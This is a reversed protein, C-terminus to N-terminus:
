GHAARGSVDGVRITRKSKVSEILACAIQVAAKGESGDPHFGTGQRVTDAFADIMRGLPDEPEFERTKDEGDRQELVTVPSAGSLDGVAEIRAKSGELVVAHKHGAFCTACTISGLAGDRYRLAATVATNIQEEGEDKALAMAHTVTQSSIWSGLDFAHVGLRLLAAPGARFADAWWGSSLDVPESLTLALHKLEGAEGSEIQDKIELSASHFRYQFAVGLRVNKGRAKEVLKHAGDVSLSMPPEMFVHKGAEIAQVAQPVHHYHPTAIYIVEVEPASLMEDLSGFVYLGPFDKVAERASAARRGCVGTIKSSPSAVLAPIMVERARRGTGIVGWGVRDAM